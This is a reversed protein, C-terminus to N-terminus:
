KGLTGSKGKVHRRHAARVSSMAQASASLMKQRQPANRLRPTKPAAKTTMVRSFAKMLDVSGDSLQVGPKPAAPDIPKVQMVVINPLNATTKRTPQTISQTQSTLPWVEAVGGFLSIVVARRVRDGRPAPSCCPRCKSGSRDVSRGVPRNERREASSLWPKKMWPGFKLWTGKPKKLPTGSPTWGKGPRLRALMM